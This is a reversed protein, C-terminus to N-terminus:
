RGLGFIWDILWSLGTVLIRLSADFFLLIATLLFIVVIVVLSARYLEGRSPWSVKNMEAEVSILFDAFSPINVIRFAIWAGFAVVVLPLTYETLLKIGLSDLSAESVVKSALWRGFGALADSTRWATAAFVAAIAAFTAQRAIRGQSRKYRSATFMGSILEAV